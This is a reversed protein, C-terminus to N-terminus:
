RLLMYTGAPDSWGRAQVLLARVLLGESGRILLGEAAGACERQGGHGDHGGPGGAPLLPVRFPPTTLQVWAAAAVHLQLGSCAGSPHQVALPRLAPPKRHCRRSVRRVASAVFKCGVGIANLLVTLRGRAGASRHQQTLIWASLTLPDTQPAHSCAPLSAPAAAAGLRRRRRPCGPQRM